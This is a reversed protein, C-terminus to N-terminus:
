KLKVSAYYKLSRSISEEPTYVPEYGLQDRAKRGSFYLNMNIYKISCSVVPLSVKHIPALIYLIWELILVPYYVSSYPIKYKSLQLHRTELFIRMFRFTNQVPTNDPIFFVEGSNIKNERLSKDACIFAWASNGVYTQQFKATGNGVQYLVNNNAKASQLGNTVYYPDLEGYMVNARLIATKLYRGNKCKQGSAKRVLCEARYKSEPYGPFLFTKPVPTTEDGNNIADHGIVVDVTSCFVLREVNTDLCSQIINQTGQVNIAEMAPTDPFTGFSILGAVHIVSQSGKIAETITNIDTISGQHMSVPVNEEYCLLNKHQVLDLVRIESVYNTREQLMKVIHQGLFGSGGTVTIIDMNTRNEM